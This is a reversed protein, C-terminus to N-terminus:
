AAAGQAALGPAVATASDGVLIGLATIDILGSGDESDTNTDNGARRSM